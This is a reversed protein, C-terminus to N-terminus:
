SDVVLMKRRCNKVNRFPYLKAIHKSQRKPWQLYLSLNTLYMVRGVFINVPSQINQNLCVYLGKRHNPVQWTQCYAHRVGISYNSNVKRVM